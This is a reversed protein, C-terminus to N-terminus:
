LLDSVQLDGPSWSNVAGTLHEPCHHAYVKEVVAATNGLVGAVQWLPTGSRAMLTAATHRLTKPTMDRFKPNGTAAYAERCLIAFQSQLDRDHDLVWPSGIQEDWARKLMPILWDPAPVSARRKVSTNATTRFDIRWTERDVRAWTLGLVDSKRGATGLLLWVYRWLRTMRRSEPDEQQVYKLLWRAEGENLWLDPSPPPEPPYIRPLTHSYFGERAAFEYASVLAGLEYKLSGDSAPAPSKRSYGPYPKAEGKRRADLYDTQVDPTLSGHAPLDGLNAKLWALATARRTKDKVIKDVYLRHYLDLVDGVTSLKTKRAGPTASSLGVAYEHLKQEAIARDTTRTSKRLTTGDGKSHRIEWYGGSNKSLWPLGDHRRTRKKKM